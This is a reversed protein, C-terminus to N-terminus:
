GMTKGEKGEEMKDIQKDLTERERERKERAKERNYIMRKRKRETGLIGAKIQSALLDIGQLELVAPCKLCILRGGGGLFFFFFFSFLPFHFTFVRLFHSCIRIAKDNAKPSHVFCITAWRKIKGSM